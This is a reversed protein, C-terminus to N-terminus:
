EEKVVIKENELRTSLWQTLKKLEESKNINKINKKWQIRFVPITDIKEFNSQLENAFSVKEIATYNIGIEKSITQFKLTNKHFKSFTEVEKQLLKIRSQSSALQQKNSDYLEQIYASPDKERTNNLIRLETNKLYPYSNKQNNWLKQIDESIVADGLFVLEIFSNGENYEVKSFESLFKGGSVEYTEVSREIFKNASNTFQSQKWVEYFTYGAPIMVLTALFYAIRSIKKRKSSNAYVVMPVKIIRLVIFTALGIFITNITFLYFAGFALKFNGIALFFGVTCLPPMLATAIAVGFIVSAMTGRKARAIVLALGGFFAILVDRIDPTTRALLESSTNRLPFLWFFIFASGVSILVMVIFNKVARRLFDVDNTALGLAMGLIPGMLPSILMAGIIVATSNANLGLSAIFIACMLIWVTHGRFSVDAKISEITTETDTDQRINMLHEFFDKITTFINKPNKDISPQQNNEMTTM